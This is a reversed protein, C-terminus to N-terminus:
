LDPVVVPVVSLPWCLGLRPARDHDLFTRPGAGQERGRARVQLCVGAAELLWTHLETDRDRIM